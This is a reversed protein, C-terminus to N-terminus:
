LSYEFMDKKLAKKEEDMWKTYKRKKGVSYVDIKSEYFSSTSSKKGM